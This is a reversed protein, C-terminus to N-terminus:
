FKPMGAGGMKQMKKMMGQMKKESGGFQKIFKKSKKYHKLLERVDSVDAGSGKAIREIRESSIVKDPDELEEKTCSDMIYKWKKMKDEQVDLVEKPMKLSSMGPIMSMLKSMSGMKNMMKMQEYLDILNFEGKMLKKTLDQADEENVAEQAKELLAEIDGMGLIRSVFGQPNFVELDDMKEGVGIFKIPAETVACATLAGGGKATGEMKTVIIGTIGCSEHFQSAQKEATQGIDASLILLKEQPEVTKTVLEIEEILDESLADRGATDIIILDYNKEKEKFSNWIKVPDKEKEDIYYDVKVAEANQKLQKMAAPRWVDLGVLCVKKGRKSFYKALKGSTTTKGSGFLGVMMVKSPKENLNLDKREEGLFNVLEEYVIKILAEKKDLGPPNEKLAREKIKKTLTLVLKVNVDSQLLARQIEKVIENILKEDVFMSNSIKSLVNKLNNSLKDLVM